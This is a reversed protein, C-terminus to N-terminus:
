ADTKDDLVMKFKVVTIRYEAKCKQCFLPFKILVTDEYVKTKTKSGCHPCHIWRSEKFNNHEM